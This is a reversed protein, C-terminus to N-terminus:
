NFKDFTSLDLSTLTQNVKLTESIDKAGAAGIKNGEIKIKAIQKKISNIFYVL